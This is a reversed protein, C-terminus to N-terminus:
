MQPFIQFQSISLMLLYHHCKNPVFEFLPKRQLNFALNDGLQSSTSVRINGTTKLMVLNDKVPVPKGDSEPFHFRSMDSEYQLPTPYKWFIVGRM